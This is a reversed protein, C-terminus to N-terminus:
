GARTGLEPLSRSEGRSRKRRSRFRCKCSVTVASQESRIATSATRCSSAVTSRTVVDRESQGVPKETTREGSLTLVGNALTSEVQNPDVGPLDVYLAFSGPAVISKRAVRAAATSRPRPLTIWGRVDAVAEFIERQLHSRFDDANMALVDGAIQAFLDRASM